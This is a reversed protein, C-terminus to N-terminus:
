VDTLIYYCVTTFFDRLYPINLFWPLKRPKLNFKIEYGPNILYFDEKEIKLQNQAVMTKFKLINMRTNRIALLEEIRYLEEGFLKLIATFLQKPLLHFYPTKCLIKNKCMQQHGGFPMRWPPFGLFIRGKPKLFQKIHSLFKKQNQIHEM